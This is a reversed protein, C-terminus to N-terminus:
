AAIRECVSRQGLRHIPRLKLSEITCFSMSNNISVDKRDMTVSSSLNILSSRSNTSTVSKSPLCGIPRQKLSVVTCFSVCQQRELDKVVAAFSKIKTSPSSITPGFSSFDEMTNVFTPFM